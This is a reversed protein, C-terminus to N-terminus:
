ILFVRYLKHVKFHAKLFETEKRSPFLFGEISFSKSLSPDAVTAEFSPTPLTAIQSDNSKNIAKGLSALTSEVMHDMEPEDYDFLGVDQCFEIGFIMLWIAVFSAAVVSRFMVASYIKFRRTDLRHATSM